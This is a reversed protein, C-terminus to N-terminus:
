VETPAPPLNSPRLDTTLAIPPLPPPSLPPRPGRKKIRRGFGGRGGGGPGDEDDDDGGRFNKLADLRAKIKADEADDLLKKVQM